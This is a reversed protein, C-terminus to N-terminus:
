WDRNSIMEEADVKYGYVETIFLYDAALCERAMTELDSDNDDFEANLDNIKKVSNHTLKYLDENTKPKQDEINKCLELLINKCKDVLFKPFYSDRYMCDLFSHKRISDNKMTSQEIFYRQSENLSGNCSNTNFLIALVFLFIVKYKTLKNM